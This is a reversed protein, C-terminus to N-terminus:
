RDVRRARMVHPGPGAEARQALTGLYRVALEAGRLDEQAEFGIRQLDAALGAPDCSTIWPEGLSAVRAAMEAFIARRGEPYSEIPEIYDFVVESGPVSAILQLTATIAARPLYPVVGLWQFFAPRDPQFGAGALAAGLDQTELDVPVFTLSAPIALTAEALRRRKWAQTAPHDVEFVRLDRECRPNRLAFTDLGAGLIVAQRVGRAVARGLCDEAFRSRAATFTRLRKPGPGAAEFRAIVADADAGLIAHALPDVFIAAGDVTQHAARHAAVALATRSPERGLTPKEPTPKEPVPNDSVPNDPMPKEPM